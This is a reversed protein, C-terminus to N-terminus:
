FNEDCGASCALTGVNEAPATIGGAGIRADMEPKTGRGLDLLNFNVPGASGPLLDSSRCDILDDGDNLSLRHGVSGPKSNTETGVKKGMGAASSNSRTVCDRARPM